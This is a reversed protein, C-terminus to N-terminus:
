KIDQFQIQMRYERSDGSNLLLDSLETARKGMLMGAHTPEICIFGGRQPQESWVATIPLNESVISIQRGDLMFTLDGKATPGMFQTDGLEKANYHVTYNDKTIAVEEASQRVVPFYPHLGPAAMFAKDGRNEIKLEMSIITNSKDRDLAIGLETYCGYYEEPISDDQLNPNELFLYATGDDRHGDKIQWHLNRAFGHQKLGFKDGPGFIPACIPIGGREKVGIIQRPFILDSGASDVLSGLYAGDLDVSARFGDHTSLVIEKSPIREKGLM